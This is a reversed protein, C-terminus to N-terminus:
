ETETAFVSPGQKSARVRSMTLPRDDTKFKVSLFLTLILECQRKALQAGGSNVALQDSRMIGRDSTMKTKIALAADAVRSCNERLTLVEPSHDLYNAHLPM